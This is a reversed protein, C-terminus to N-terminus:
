QGPPKPPGAPKGQQGQQQQGGQQLHQKLALMMQVQQMQQQQQQRQSAEQDTGILQVEDARSFAELLMRTCNFTKVQDQAIFPVKMLLEFLALNEQRRSSADLPDASGAVDLQYDKALIDPPLLFKNTGDSFTTETDQYQLKLKHIFNFIARCVVRMRMAVLDNRTTTSAVQQKSETATRRGSSQAGMIPASVGTLKDIYSNLLQEDQFSYIPINPPEMWKVSNAGGSVGWKTGPAWAQENDFLEDGAQCLLPPSLALDILNNRANYMANIEAQIPALRECLSYGYWRAPRPAPSFAFFPRESALYEYERWGLMRQSLEHLFFINEEPVGDGNMDYQRTHIRWIKIPGRNKFYTSTQSGQGIGIELQGGARRDYSGQRDSAFDNQGTPVYNLADEVEKKNLTGEKVMAMLEDEMLFLARAVGVAEEISAAENPILLFDRLLVPKLEVDDYDITQVSKISKQKVPKGDAGIVPMGDQTANEWAVVKRDSVTKRWLVEMIATGDRFALHLWTIYQEFWTTSGRQKNLQTNYYREVLHATESAEADNPTVIYFRPVMVKGSIYAVATDLQAPIIPIFINSANEWPWDTQGVEMEYLSSWDKLNQELPQRGGLSANVSQYLDNSLIGWAQSDIKKAQSTYSVDAQPAHSTQTSLPQRAM